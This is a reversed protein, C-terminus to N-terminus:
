LIPNINEPLGEQRVQQQKLLVERFKTLENIFNKKDFTQQPDVLVEELEHLADRFSPQVETIGRFGVRSLKPDAVELWSYFDHYLTTMDSDQCSDLLTKFRGEESQMYAVKKEAKKKQIYPILKYLVGILILILLISLASPKEEESPTLSAASKPNPLVIFHLSPTKETHLVQEAPNWWILKQSPISVNGEKAAVFTFSDTRTVITATGAEKSKLIPEEKYIKLRPNESFHIPKLLIDPVNKAEQIVKLEIADGVKIQTVNTESLKPSVDSKLTYNPTSLVFDEKGVGKPARVDLILADSQFTFNNDPQGYGMSAKFAIDIPTITIKGAHLPYLKYEYHVVQWQTDNIDLTELSSASKPAVVIYDKSNELGIKANMISFATTKLDVKLVVEESVFRDKKEVPYVSIAGDVAFLGFTLAVFLFLIRSNM